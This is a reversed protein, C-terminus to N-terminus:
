AIDNRCVKKVEFRKKTTSTSGEPAKDAKAKSTAAAPAASGSDTMEVDAMTYITFLSSSLLLYICLAATLPKLYRDPQTDKL